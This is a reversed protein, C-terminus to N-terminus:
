FVFVVLVGAVALGLTALVFLLLVLNFVGFGAAVERGTEHWHAESVEDVAPPPADRIAPSLDANADASVVRGEAACYAAGDPLLTAPRGCHPCATQTM